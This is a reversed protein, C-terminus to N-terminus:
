GNSVENGTCAASFTDPDAAVDGHLRVILDATVPFGRLRAAHLLQWHYRAPLASKEAWKNVQHVSVRRNADIGNMDDSLEARSPWLNVIDRISNPQRM